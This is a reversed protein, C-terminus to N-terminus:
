VVRTGKADQDIAWREILDLEEGYLKRFLRPVVIREILGALGRSPEWSTEIRVRSQNGAPDVTFSTVASKDPYAETLVRGPEPEEVRAEIEQNRGAFKLSFRIKTGAGTGGRLVTLDSFSPPLISPHGIRYDALLAYVAEAPAPVTREASVHLRSM